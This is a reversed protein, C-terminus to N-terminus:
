AKNEALRCIEPYGKNILESIERCLEELNVNGKAPDPIDYAIHIAAETLLFVKGRALPFESQIAEKHGAEMVLILDHNSIDEANLLKTLHGEINLGLKSAASLADSRVPKGSETWTGASHIQWKEAEAEQKARQLFAAAAIPSRYLNGTCVFLISPM